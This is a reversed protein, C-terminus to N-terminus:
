IGEGFLYLICCFTGFFLPFFTEIGLRPLGRSFVPFRICGRLFLGIFCVASCRFVAFPNRPFTFGPIRKEPISVPAAGRLM